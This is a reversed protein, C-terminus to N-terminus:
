KSTIKKVKYRIEVSPSIKIKKIVPVDISIGVKKRLRIESPEVKRDSAMVFHSSLLFMMTLIKM